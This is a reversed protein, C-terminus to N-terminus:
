AFIRTKMERAAARFAALGEPVGIDEFYGPHRYVAVAAGDRLLAPLLERELSCAQGPPVRLLVERDMVYVGANILGPGGEPRKEAFARLWHGETVLAGFRGADPREVAALTLAARSRAHLECLAALDVDAFSDGNQALVRAAGEPLALRLAGATGLPASERVVRVGAQEAFHAEIVEAKYGTSLVIERVGARRLHAVVYDLFPRGDIDAMPKPRHASVEPLRTGFGGALVLATEVM